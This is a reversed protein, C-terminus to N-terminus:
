DELHSVLLNILKLPVKIPLPIVRLTIPTTGGLLISHQRYASLAHHGQYGYGLISRFPGATFIAKTSSSLVGLWTLSHGYRTIILVKCQELGGCM